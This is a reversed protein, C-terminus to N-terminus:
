FGGAVEGAVATWERLSTQFRIVKALSYHHGDPVYFHINPQDWAYVADMAHEACESGTEQSLLVGGIAELSGYFIIAAIFTIQFERYKCGM